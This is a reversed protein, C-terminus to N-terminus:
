VSHCHNRFRQPSSAPNLLQLPNSLHALPCISSLWPKKISIFYTTPGLSLLFFIKDHMTKLGVTPLVASLSLSSSFCSSASIDGPRAVLTSNDLPLGLEDTHSPSLMSKNSALKSPSAPFGLRKGSEISSASRHEPTGYEDSSASKITCNACLVNCRPYGQM